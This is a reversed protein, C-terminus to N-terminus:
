TDEIKLLPVPVDYSPAEKIEGTERNVIFPSNGVLAYEPNQTEIYTKSNYEIVWGWEHEDIEDVYIQLEEDPDIEKLHEEVLAIAQQKTIM